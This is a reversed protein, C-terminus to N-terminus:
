KQFHYSCYLNSFKYGKDEEEKLELSLISNIIEIATAFHETLMKIYNYMKVQSDYTKNLKGDFTKM